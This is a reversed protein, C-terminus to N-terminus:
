VFFSGQTLINGGTNVTVGTQSVRGYTEGTTRGVKVLTQGVIANGTGTVTYNDTIQAYPDYYRQLYAIKGLSSKGSTIRVFASDSYRCRNSGCAFTKAEATETGIISSNQNPGQRFKMGTVKLQDGTCHSNTVFGRVGNRVAIFGITCYYYGNQYPGWFLQLGGVMPRVQDQLRALETPPDVVAVTAVAALGLRALRGEVEAQAEANSVGVFLRNQREDIDLTVADAIDLVGGVEARRFASALETFSYDARIIRLQPATSQTILEGAEDRVATPALTDEGFVTSIASALPSSPTAHAQIDLEGTDKLYATLIGDEDYFLGAFGPVQEAVQAFQEDLSLESGTIPLGEGPDNAEPQPTTSCSSIALVLVAAMGLLTLRKLLRVEAM